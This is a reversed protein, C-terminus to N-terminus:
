KTSGNVIGSDKTPSIAWLSDYNYKGTTDFISTKFDLTLKAYYYSKNIVSSTTGDSLSSSPLDFITKNSSSFDIENSTAPKEEFTLTGGNSSTQVQKYWSLRNKKFLPNLTDNTNSDNTNVSLDWNVKFPNDIALTGSASLTKKDEGLKYTGFDFNKPYTVLLNGTVNLVYSIPTYDVDKVTLGADSISTNSSELTKNIPDDTATVLYSLKNKHYLHYGILQYGEDIQDSGGSSTNSDMNYTKGDSFATRDYENKTDQYQKELATIANGSNFDITNESSTFTENEETLSSTDTYNKAYKQWKGDNLRYWLYYSTGNPNINLTTTFKKETTQITSADAGLNINDQNVTASTNNISANLTKTPGPIFANNGSVTASLITPKSTNTTSNKLFGAPDDDTGAVDFYESDFGAYSAVEDDVSMNGNINQGSILNGTLPSGTGSNNADISIDANPALVSGVFNDGTYTGFDLETNETNFNHLLHSSTNYLTKITKSNNTVSTNTTLLNVSKTNQGKFISNDSNDTVYTEDGSLPAYGAIRMWAAKTFDFSTFNKYNLIIYPMKTEGSTFNLLNISIEKAAQFHDLAGNVDVVVIGQKTSKHNLDINIQIVGSGGNNNSNTITHDTNIAVSKIADNYLATKGSVNDKTKSVATSTFDAYYDSVNRLNTATDNFSTVENKKMGPFDALTDTKDEVEHFRTVGSTDWSGLTNLIDKDTPPHEIFFSLNKTKSYHFSKANSYMRLLGGSVTDSVMSPNMKNYTDTDSDSLNKASYDQITATGYGTSKFDKAFYQGQLSQVDDVNFTISGSAFGTVGTAAGLPYQDPPVYAGSSKSNAQVSEIFAFFLFLGLFISTFLMYVSYRSTYMSRIM